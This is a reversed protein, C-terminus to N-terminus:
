PCGVAEMTEDRDIVYENMWRGKRQLFCRTQQFGSRRYLANAQENSNADTTLYVYQADMSWAQALFAQVLNRGLGNSGADPAVAISSLECSRATAQSASTQIRKVGNLINVALSPHHLLACLAPMMFYRRSCWMLQYFESPDVFGCAFGNLTGRRENVLVIGARYDLVLGYYRHLFATGMKTLFFQSFAKQHITVIDPLDDAIAKRVSASHLNSPPNRRM